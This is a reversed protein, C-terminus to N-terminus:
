AVSHFINQKVSYAILALVGATGPGCSPRKATTVSRLAPSAISATADPTFLAPRFTECRVAFDHPGPAAVRADLRTTLGVGAVTALFAAEGPLARLVGDFRRAPFAPINRSFRHHSHEHAQKQTARSAAPATPARSERRGRNRSLASSICCGPRFAGRSHTSDDRRLGPGM